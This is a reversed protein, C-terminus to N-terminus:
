RCVGCSHPLRLSPLCCRYGGWWISVSAFNGLQTYQLELRQYEQEIDYRHAIQPSLCGHRNNASLPLSYSCIQFPTPWNSVERTFVKNNAAPKAQWDCVCLRRELQNSPFHHKWRQQQRKWRWDKRGYWVKCSSSFLLDSCRVTEAGKLGKTWIVLHLQEIWSRGSRTVLIPYM